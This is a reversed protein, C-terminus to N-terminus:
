GKTRGRVDELLGDNHMYGIETRDGIWKQPKADEEIIIGCMEGEYGRITATPPFLKLFEIAKEVTLSM